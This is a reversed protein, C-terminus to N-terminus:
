LDLDHVNQSFLECTTVSLVFLAITWLFDYTTNRNTYKYKVKTLRFTLTKCMKVSYRMFPLPAFM